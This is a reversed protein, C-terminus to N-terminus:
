SIASLTPTIHRATNNYYEITPKTISVLALKSDRVPRGHQSVSMEKAERIHAPNFSRNTGANKTIKPLSHFRSFMDGDQNTKGRKEGIYSCIGLYVVANDEPSWRHPDLGRLVFFGKGRHLEFAISSLRAALNPLPFTWPSAENGDLGLGSIFHNNFVIRASSLVTGKFLLLAQDIETIDEENLTYTYQSESLFERGRWALPSDVYAPWGKRVANRSKEFSQTAHTIDLSDISVLRDYLAGAAM